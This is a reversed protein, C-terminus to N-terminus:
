GTAGTTITRTPKAERATSIVPQATFSGTPTSLRGM